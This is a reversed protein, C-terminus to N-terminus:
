GDTHSQLTAGLRRSQEDTWGEPQLIRQWAYPIAEIYVHGHGDSVDGAVSLDAAVQLFSVIPIWRMAPLVDPGRQGSLWDPKQFLLRPSFWTVPDSPHQVYIIRPSNWPANPHAFDEPGAGFRVHEGNRYVPRWIPSDPDRNETLDSWITNGFTPGSFLAGDTRSVMSGISGFASESGFTGLSEGFVVLKPRDEAPLLKVRRDVAEFLALGARRARDQDVLFSIFSPLTSYQMSVMATDGNYMYDLSSMTVENVWGRGTSTAVGVVERQLGGLRALEAAAFEADAEISTGTYLGAYARIPEMAPTGTFETLQDVTPAYAVFNRGYMGLESWRIASNPGGSRFMSQTPTETPEYEDNISQFASRVAGMTRDVVVGNIAFITVAVILLGGTVAAVRPPVWRGLWRSLGRVAAGWGQGVAMFLAFFLFSLFFMLPYASPPLLEVDMMARLERQWIAFGITMGILMAPAAVALTIWWSRPRRPWPDSRSVMFRALWAGFVGVGYGLAASGGTVIGQFLPGRPLLSPSLSLAGLISALVMGTFSIRLRYHRWARQLRVM